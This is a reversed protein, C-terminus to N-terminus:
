ARLRDLAPQPDEGTDEAVLRILSEAEEACAACARLHVFMEPLEATDPRRLVLEAFRDSLDFCEDCSLWPETPLTLEVAEASTLRPPRSTM